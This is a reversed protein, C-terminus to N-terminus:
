KPFQRYWEGDWYPKLNDKFFIPIDHEKAQNVLGEIWERKPIIKGKRNGTEAGIIIWDVYRIHDLSQLIIKSHLPEASLFRINNTGIIRSRPLKDAERQNTITFGIWTNRPFWFNLMYNPRKTLTQFTHHQNDFITKQIAFMSENSIWNGFLEMTSGVFIKSPIKIKYPEDLEGYALRIEPNWKFRDYLRRAYCYPCGVPCKGKVPNWTYDTWEIKTKQM